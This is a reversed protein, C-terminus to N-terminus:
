YLSFSQRCGSAEEDVGIVDEVVQRASGMTALDQDIMPYMNLIFRVQYLLSRAPASAPCPSPNKDQGTELEHHRLTASRRRAAADTRNHKLVRLIDLHQCLPHPILIPRNGCKLLTPDQEIHEVRGDCPVHLLARVEEDAFESEVAM